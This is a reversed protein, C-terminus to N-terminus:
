QGVPVYILMTDDVRGLNAFKLNNPGIRLRFKFTELTYGDIDVVVVKWLDEWTAVDFKQVRLDGSNAQDVSNDGIEAEEAGEGYISGNGGALARRAHWFKGGDGKDGQAAQTVSAGVGTAPVACHKGGNGCAV